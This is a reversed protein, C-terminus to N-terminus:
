VGARAVCHEVERLEEMPASKWGGLYIPFGGVRVHTGRGGGVTARRFEALTARDHRVTFEGQELHLGPVEVAVFVRNRELTEIYTRISATLQHLKQVAQRRNITAKLAVPGYVVLVATAMVGAVVLPISLQGPNPYLVVFGILFVISLLVFFIVRVVTELFSM